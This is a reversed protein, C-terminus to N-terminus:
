THSLALMKPRLDWASYLGLIAFGALLRPYRRVLWALKDFAAMMLVLLLVLTTTRQYDLANISGILETGIGGAGVAGVIVAARMRPLLAGIILALLLGFSLSFLMGGAAIEVTQWVPALEARLYSPSLDPPFFQRLQAFFSSFAGM